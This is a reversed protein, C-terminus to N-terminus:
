SRYEGNIRVYDYTLDCTWVTASGEGLGLDVSVDVEEATLIDAAEEEDFPIPQGDECLLLDGFRVDVRDPDVQAGSYGVACIVRGWNADGGFIACKLLPSDAVAFAAKVADADSAAGDVRVTVLKTAGEGDRVLMRALEGCVHTVARGVGELRPDGVGITDGGAAGNALLAATDNTSTEGDVTIRHFTADAAAALVAHCAEATLPADTTLFALMTAMDPRIMGSGKAMGGVAYKVGGLELEVAFQKPFTDTTMIAEAADEGGDGELREAAEAVGAVVLEVPLPVGIVGTSAVLVDTAECAVAEAVARATAAADRDGRPGTCANANGANAVIARLSGDAAHVRSLKVPAAAIRNTTFLAAASAPRESVILALDRRGSKKVGASVGAAVFGKAACVGGDMQRLDSGDM